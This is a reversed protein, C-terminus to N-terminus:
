HSLGAALVFRVIFSIYVVLVTYAHMCTYMYTGTHGDTHSYLFKYM